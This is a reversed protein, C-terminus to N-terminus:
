EGECDTCPESWPIGHGCKGERYKKLALADADIPAEAKERCSVCLTRMWNKTSKTLGPSGCRECVRCSLREAMSVAGLIEAREDFDDCDWYFRLSGFKEKITHIQFSPMPDAKNKAFYEKVWAASASDAEGQKIWTKQIEIVEQYRSLSRDIISLLCDLIDFWGDYCAFQYSKTNKFLKPYKTVLTQLKPTEM